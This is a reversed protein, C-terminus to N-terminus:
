THSLPDITLDFSDKPECLNFPMEPRGAMEFGGQMRAPATGQGDYEARVQVRQQEQREMRREEEFDVMKPKAPLNRGVLKNAKYLGELQQLAEERAFKQEVVEAMEIDRAKRKAERRKRFICLMGAPGGRCYIYMWAIILVLAITGTSILFGIAQPSYHSPSSSPTVFGEM